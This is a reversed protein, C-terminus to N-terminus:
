IMKRIELKMRVMDFKIFPRYKLIKTKITPWIYTELIDRDFKKLSFLILTGFTKIALESNPKM